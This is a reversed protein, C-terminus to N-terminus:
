RFVEGGDEFFRQRIANQAIKVQTKPQQYYELEKKTDKIVHHAYFTVGVVWSASLALSLVAVLLYTLETNM